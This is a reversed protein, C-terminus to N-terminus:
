DLWHRKILRCTKEKYFNEAPIKSAVKYRNGEIDIAFFKLPKKLNFLRSKERDLQAQKICDCNVALLQRENPKILVPFSFPYFREGFQLDISIFGDKTLSSVKKHRMRSLRKFLAKITHNFRARESFGVIVVDETYNNRTNFGLLLPGAHEDNLESALIMYQPDIVKNVVHSKEYFNVRISLSKKPKRLGLYLAVICAGSTAIASLVTGIANIADYNM